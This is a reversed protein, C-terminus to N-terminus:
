AHRAFDGHLSERLAKLAEICKDKDKYAFGKTYYTKSNLRVIGIWSNRQARWRLGKIGHPNRKQLKSNLVNSRYDAARLNEIRNNRRNGDIHDLMPVPENGHMVWVIRHAKYSKGQFGVRWYGKAEHSGALEGAFYSSINIKWYLHGDKYEFLSHAQERTLDNAHPYPPKMPAGGTAYRDRALCTASRQDV